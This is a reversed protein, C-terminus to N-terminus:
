AVSFKLINGLYLDYKHALTAEHLLVVSCIVIHRSVHPNMALGSDMVRAHVDVTELSQTYNTVAITHLQTTQTTERQLSWCEVM